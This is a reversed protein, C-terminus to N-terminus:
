EGKLALVARKKGYKWILKGYIVWEICLLFLLCENVALVSWFVVLSNIGIFKMVTIVPYEGILKYVGFEKKRLELFVTTISIICLLFSLVNIVLHFMSESLALQTNGKLVHYSKRLSEVTVSNKDLGMDILRKEIVEAGSKTLLVDGSNLYLTKQLKHVYYISDYTYFGPWLIDKSIQGDQIYIIDPEEEFHFYELVSEISKKYHVPVLITNNDANIQSALVKNGKVDLVDMIELMGASIRTYIYEEYYDEPKKGSVYERLKVSDVMRDSSEYNFVEKDDLAGIWRDLKKHISEEPTVTTQVTYLDYKELERISKITANMKYINNISDNMSIVLCITTIVKFLVLVRFILKNNKKNKIAGALDVYNIFFTGVVASFLFVAALFLCLLFYIEFYVNVKSIDSFIVYIGFPIICVLSFIYLRVLLKYLLYFSIKGSGWGNLKLVGIEKLRYVYYTAISLILLITLLGFFGINLSSFLVGIHFSLPETKLIDVHYEENELNEKMKEIKRQNNNQVSFFQIEKQDKGLKKYVINQKPFVSPQKGMSIDSNPNIFTVVKENRGFSTNKFDVISM